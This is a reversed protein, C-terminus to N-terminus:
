ADANEDKILALIEVAAVRALEKSGNWMPEHDDEFSAIVDAIRDVLQERKM